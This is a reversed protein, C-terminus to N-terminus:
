PRVDFHTALITRKELPLARLRRLLDDVDDATLVRAPDDPDDPLWNVELPEDTLIALLRERGPEGSIEFADYEGDAQPLTTEGRALRPNPVFWSPCLLYLKKDAGHNLLTLYTPRETEIVLRVRDGLHYTHRANNQRAGLGRLGSRTGPAAKDAPVPWIRDTNHALEELGALTPLLVIPRVATGTQRGGLGRLAYSEASPALPPLWQGDAGKARVGALRLAHLLPPFWQAPTAGVVEVKPWKGLWAEAQDTFSMRELIVPLYPREHTWALQLEQNVRHARMAADSCMVLVVKCTQLASEMATVDGAANPSRDFWLSVGADELRTVIPRVREQDEAAYSVYVEPSAAQDAM